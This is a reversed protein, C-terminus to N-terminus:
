EKPDVKGRAWRSIKAYTAFVEDDLILELTRTRQDYKHSHAIEFRKGYGDQKIEYEWMQRDEVVEM